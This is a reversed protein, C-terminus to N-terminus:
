VNDRNVYMFKSDNMDHLINKNSFESTVYRMEGVM